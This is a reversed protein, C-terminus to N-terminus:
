VHWIRYCFNIAGNLSIIQEQSLKDGHLLSNSHLIVTEGAVKRGGWGGRSGWGWGGIECLPEFILPGM